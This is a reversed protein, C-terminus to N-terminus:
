SVPRLFLRFELENKHDGVVDSAVKELVPTDGGTDDHDALRDAIRQVANANEGSSRLVVGEVAESATITSATEAAVSEFDHSDTVFVSAFTTEGHRLIEIGSESGSVPEAAKAERTMQHLTEARSAAQAQWQASSEDPTRRLRYQTDEIRELLGYAVLLGLLQQLSPESYQALGASLEPPTFSDTGFRSHIHLYLEVCREVEPLHASETM